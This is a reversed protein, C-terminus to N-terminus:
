VAIHVISCFCIAYFQSMFLVCQEIGDMYVFLVMICGSFICWVIVDSFWLSNHVYFDVGAPSNGIRM